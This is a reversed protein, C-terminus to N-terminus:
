IYHGYRKHAQEATLIEVVYVNKNEFDIKYIVRFNGIRLRYYDKSGEIEKKNREPLPNELEFLANKIQSKRQNPINLFIDKNYFIKFSM